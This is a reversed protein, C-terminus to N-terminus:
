DGKIASQTHTVVTLWIVCNSKTVTQKQDTCNHIPKTYTYENTNYLDHKNHM